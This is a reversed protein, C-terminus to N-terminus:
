RELSYRHGPFAEHGPFTGKLAGQAQENEERAPVTTAVPCLSTVPIHGRSFSLLCYRQSGATVPQLESDSPKDQEKLSARGQATQTQFQCAQRAASRLQVPQPQVVGATGVPQLKADWCRQRRQDNQLGDFVNIGQSVEVTQEKSLIFDALELVQICQRVQSHEAYLYQNQETDNRTSCGQETFLRMVKLLSQPILPDRTDPDFQKIPISHSIKHQSKKDKTSFSISM